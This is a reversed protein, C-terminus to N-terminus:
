QKALHKKKIGVVLAKSRVLIYNFEVAFSDSFMPVNFVNLFYRLMLTNVNFQFIFQIKIAGGDGGCFRLAGSTVFRLTVRSQSTGARLPPDSIVPITIPSM